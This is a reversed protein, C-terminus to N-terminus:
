KSKKKKKKSKKGTQNAIRFFHVAITYILVNVIFSSFLFFCTIIKGLLPVLKVERKSTKSTTKERWLINGHKM